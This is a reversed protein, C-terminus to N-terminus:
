RIFVKGYNDGLGNERGRERFIIYSSTYFIFFYPWIFRGGQVLVHAGRLAASGSGYTM